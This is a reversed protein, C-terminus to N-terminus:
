LVVEMSAVACGDVAGGNYCKRAVYAVVSAKPIRFTTGIKFSQVEGSRILDYARNRGIHLIQQLDKITLLDPCQEFM